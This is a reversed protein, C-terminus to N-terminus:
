ESRLIAAPRLRSAVAAPGTAMLNAVALLGVLAAGLAAAALAPRDLVGLGRAVVGWTVRGIALGIPIGVITGALITLSAQWWVAAAVQRSMAGMARLVALDQRRARVSLALAHGVAIVALTALFGAMLWPLGGVAQMNRIRPPLFPKVVEMGDGVHDKTLAEVDVGPRVRVLALAGVPEAELRALGGTTMSGASALDANNGLEPYVARGVVHFSVGAGGGIRVRSGVHAGRNALADTGLAIEDSGVPARGELITPHVDGRARDFAYVELGDNGVAIDAVTAWSVAEVRPDDALGRTADQLKALDPEGGSVAFDFTWGHLRPTDVLQSLSAAFTVVATIGAMGVAVAVLAARASVTAPGPNSRSFTWHVGLRVPLPGVAPAPQTPGASPGRAVARFALLAGAL